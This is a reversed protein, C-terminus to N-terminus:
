IIIVEVLLGPTWLFEGPKDTCQYTGLLVKIFVYIYIYKRKRFFVEFHFGVKSDM